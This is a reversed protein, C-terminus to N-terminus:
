HEVRLLEIRARGTAVPTGVVGTVVLQSPNSGASILRGLAVGTRRRSLVTDPPFSPELEAPVFVAFRGPARSLARAAQQLLGDAGAVLHDDKPIFAAAELVLRGRNLQIVMAAVAPDQGGAGALIALMLTLTTM